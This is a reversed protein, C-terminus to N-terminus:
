LAWQRTIVEGTKMTMDIKLGRPLSSISGSDLPWTDRWRRDPYYFNVTFIQINNLLLDLHPQTNPVRNLVPWTVLYLKDGVFRFGIRKPPSSGYVPDGIFGNLTLELQADYNGTLKNKGMVAPEILGNEDRIVLPIAREWSISLQHLAKAMGGWKDQAATVIEKTKVLAALTRYSIITIIAFIMIAVLLEILTFGKYKM